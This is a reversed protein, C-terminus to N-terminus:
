EKKPTMGKQNVGKSLKKMRSAVKLASDLTTSMVGEDGGEELYKAVEWSGNSKNAVELAGLRRVMTEVANINGTIELGFQDILLDLARALSKAEHEMRANSWKRTRVYFGVTGGLHMWLILQSKAVRKGEPLILELKREGQQVEEWANSVQGLKEEKELLNEPINRLMAGLVDREGPANQNEPVVGNGSQNNEINSTKIAIIDSHEKLKADITDLKKMLTGLFKGLQDNSQLGQSMAGGLASTDILEEIAVATSDESVRRFSGIWRKVFEQYEETKLNGDVIEVNNPNFKKLYKVLLQIASRDQCIADCRASMVLGKIKDLSSENPTSGLANLIEGKLIESELPGSM